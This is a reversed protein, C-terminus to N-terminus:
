ISRSHLAIRIKRISTPSFKARSPGPVGDGNLRSATRKFGFGDRIMQFIRVITQAESPVIEWEVHDRKIGGATKVEVSRYGFTGGGGYCVHGKEARTRLGPRIRQSAKKREQGAAWAALYEQAEGIGGGAELDIERDDRVAFVRVGANQITMVTTLTLLSDRGIRSQETVLVVDFPRRPAALATLLAHLGPREPGFLAGSIGDDQYFQKPDVTWRRHGASRRSSL